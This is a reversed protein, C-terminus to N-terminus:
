GNLRIRVEAVSRIIEGDGNILDASMRAGSTSIHVVVSEHGPQAVHSAIAAIADSLEALLVDLRTQDINM